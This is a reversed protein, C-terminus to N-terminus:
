ATDSCLRSALTLSLLTLGLALSRGHPRLKEAFPTHNLFLHRCSRLLLIVVPPVLVFVAIHQSFGYGSRYAPSALWLMPVFTLMWFLYYLLDEEKENTLFRWLEVVFIVSLFVGFGEWSMGGLFTIFGSIITWLLRFRKDQVQLSFLYTVVTLVGVMLCWADRDGFGATSREISGPLIALLVGVISSFLLGYTHYLFLCLAGLGIGFCLIPMYLIVHYLTVNPFVTSVVKHTYALAYPYVNLTQGLDRGLPLWRHMDRGPLHGQESILTAQWYYFYADNETFQGQPIRETGQVRIWCCLLLISGLLFLSAISRVFRNPM